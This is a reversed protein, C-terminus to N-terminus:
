EERCPLPSCLASLRKSSAAQRRDRLLVLPTQTSLHSTLFNKLEISNLIKKTNDTSGTDVIVIENVIDKVSNIAQELYQEENKTIMCLSITNKEMM